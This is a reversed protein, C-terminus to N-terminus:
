ALKERLERGFKIFKLGKPRLGRTKMFNASQASLFVADECLQSFSVLIIFFKKNRSSGVFSAVRYEQVEHLVARLALPGGPRLGTTQISNLYFAM